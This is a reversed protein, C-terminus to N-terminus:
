LYQRLWELGEYRTYFIRRVMQKSSAVIEQNVFFKTITAALTNPLIISQYGLLANSHQSVYIGAKRAHPTLSNENFSLDHMALYLQDPTWAQITSMTAEVWADIGDNSTNPVTFVVIREDYLWERTIGHGFSEVKDEM